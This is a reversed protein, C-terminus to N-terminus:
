DRLSHGTLKLFVDELNPKRIMVNEISNELESVIKFIQALSKEVDTTSLSFRNGDQKELTTFHEALVSFVEDHSDSLSFEIVNKEEIMKILEELTGEAIIKGHDIIVIRDALYEAEEMYHTTLIITKKKEKLKLVTDWLLRRAQPDLGTTPEDLFVIKPDNVLAVAIALRQKQGGSLNKVRARAKEQLEVLEILEEPKLSKSYLGGFFEITEKVNLYDMFSSTQLQVGIVEKIDRGVREVRKGFYFIEGADPKRLGELIEITTTKGAGNPGLIALCEGEKVAFSVGDVAKVNGYHKKLDKIEIAVTM